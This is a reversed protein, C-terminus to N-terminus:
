MGEIRQPNVDLRIKILDTAADQIELEIGLYKQTTVISSHGLILSIQEIPSGAKRMIQAASRRLDHPAIQGFGLGECYGTVVRWIADTSMSASTRDIHDGKRFGRWILGSTIGAAATWADLAAKAWAPVPVSRIKGRKGTLDVIVWRGERQQIHEMTLSACEERRLATGILISLIARDRLGKKTTVDPANILREAQKLALWNGLRQGEMKVGKVKRASNAAQEDLYGNDAAETILKRIASLKLNVTAPKLGKQCLHTKYRNILDKNIPEDGARWNLFERLATEYNRQTRKSEPLSDKVLQILKEIMAQRQHQEIEGPQVVQIEARRTMPATSAYTQTYNFISM